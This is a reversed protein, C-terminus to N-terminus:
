MVTNTVPSVEPPEVILLSTRTNAPPLQHAHSEIVAAHMITGTDNCLILYVWVMCELIYSVLLHDNKMQVSIGVGDLTLAPTVASLELILTDHCHDRRPKGM